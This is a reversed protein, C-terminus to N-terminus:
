QTVPNFLPKLADIDYQDIGDNKMKEVSDYGASDLIQRAMVETGWSRMIIGAAVAMGRGVAAQEKKATDSNM